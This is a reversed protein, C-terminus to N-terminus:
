KLWINKMLPMKSFFNKLHKIDFVFARFTQFPNNVSNQLNKFSTTSVIKQFLIGYRWFQKFAFNKMPSMTSSPKLAAKLDFVFRRLTQFNHKGMKQLIKHSLTSVMKQSVLESGEFSNWDLAKWPFCKLCHNWTAKLDFIFTKEM